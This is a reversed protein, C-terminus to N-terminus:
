PSPPMLTKCDTQAFAASGFALMMLAATV